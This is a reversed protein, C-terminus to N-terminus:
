KSDNITKCFLKTPDPIISRGTLILDEFAKDLYDKHEKNCEDLWSEISFLDRVKAEFDIWKFDLDLSVEEVIQDVIREVTEKDKIEERNRM